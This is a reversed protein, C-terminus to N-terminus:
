IMSIPNDAQTRGRLSWKWPSTPGSESYSSKKALTSGSYFAIFGMLERFTVYNGIERRIRQLLDRIGSLLIRVYRTRIFKLFVPLVQFERGQETLIKEAIFLVNQSIFM